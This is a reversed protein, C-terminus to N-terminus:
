IPGLFKSEKIIQHILKNGSNFSKFLSIRGVTYNFEIKELEKPQDKLVVDRGLTIHPIYKREEIKLNFELLRNHIDKQLYYLYDNEKVKLWYIDGHRTNFVGLGSIFIEFPNISYNEIMSEIEKTKEEEVEGIFEITLHIHEKHVFKGKISHTKLQNSINYIKNKALDDFNIAIFLRM